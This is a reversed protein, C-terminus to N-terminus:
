AAARWDPWGTVPVLRRPVPDPEDFLEETQAPAQPRPCHGRRRGNHYRARQRADDDRNM